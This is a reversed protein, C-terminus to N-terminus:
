QSRFLLVIINHSLPKNKRKKVVSVRIHYLFHKDKGICMADREAALRGARYLCELLRFRGTEEGHSGEPLVAGPFPRPRSNRVRRLGEGTLCFYCVKGNGGWAGVSVPLYSCHLINM